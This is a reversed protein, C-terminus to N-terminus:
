KPEKMTFVVMDCGPCVGISEIERSDDSRYLAGKFPLHYTKYITGCDGCETLEKKIKYKM